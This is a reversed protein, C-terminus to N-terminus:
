TDIGDTTVVFNGDSRVVRCGGEGRLNILANVKAILPNMVDISLATRESGEVLMDLPKFIDQPTTM